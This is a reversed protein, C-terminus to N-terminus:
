RANGRFATIPVQQSLGTVTVPVGGQAVYRLTGPEARLAAVLTSQAKAPSPGPGGNINSIVPGGGDPGQGDPLTRIPESTTHSLAIVVQRV